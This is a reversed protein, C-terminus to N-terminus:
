QTPCGATRVKHWAARRWVCVCVCVSAIDACTIMQILQKVVAELLTHAYPHAVLLPKTDQYLCIAAADAPPELIALEGAPRQAGETWVDIM